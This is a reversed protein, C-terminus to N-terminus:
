LQKPDDWSGRFAIEDVSCRTRKAKEKERFDEPLQEMDGIYGVAIMTLPTFGEPINYLERAKRPLIGAMQHVFLDHRTAEFTLYSVAQGLDHKAVKNPRGDDEFHDKKVTLVLMPAGTAWKRNHDNLVKSLREFEEPRDKTAVIFRWPQENYSSPAWRAADFLQRILERDVPKDSFARPSWRQQLLEHIDYDTDAAKEVLDIENMAM